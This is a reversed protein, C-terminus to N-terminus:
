KSCNRQVEKNKWQIWYEQLGELTTMLPSIALEEGSLVAKKL